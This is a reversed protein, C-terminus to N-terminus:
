KEATIQSPDSVVIQPEGKYSTVPGTVCIKKGRYEKEPPISFRERNIGWILVSFVQNPSPRDLYLFTPRGKSRAAYAASAVQGCVTARKGVFKSAESPSIRDQASIQFSFCFLLLLTTSVIPKNMSGHDELIASSALIHRIREKTRGFRSSTKALQSFERYCPYCSAGISDKIM